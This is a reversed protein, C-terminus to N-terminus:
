GKKVPETYIQVQRYFLKMIVCVAGHAFLLNQERLQQNFREAVSFPERNVDKESIEM